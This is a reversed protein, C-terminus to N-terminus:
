LIICATFKVTNVHAHKLNPIIQGRAALIPNVNCLLFNVWTVTNETFQFYTGM